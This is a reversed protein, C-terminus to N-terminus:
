AAKSGGYYAKLEDAIPEPLADVHPVVGPDGGLLVAPDQGNWGGLNPRHIQYGILRQLELPFERAVDPPYTLFQNEYTKLWGLCYSVIIGTREAASRNGGAAHTLSGMFLCASGAPMTAPVSEDEEIFRDLDDKHSGPWLRTAGNEPTFEDLAWMVNILWPVGHKECPWMEEDRHPAQGREGSHIRVAQVLNLQVYDCHPGLIPEVISLIAPDLVLERVSPSKSLISGIRTTNWGYFDGVCHPTAQFHPELEANIRGLLEPSLHNKLITYGDGLMAKRATGVESADPSGTGSAMDQTEPSIMQPKM